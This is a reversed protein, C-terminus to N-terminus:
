GIRSRVLPVLVAVRVVQALLAFPAKTAEADVLNIEELQM